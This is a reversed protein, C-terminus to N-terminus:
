ATHASNESWEASGMSFNARYELLGAQKALWSIGSLIQRNL